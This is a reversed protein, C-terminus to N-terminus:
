PRTFVATRAIRDHLAQRSPTLVLGCGLLVIAAALASLTQIVNIGSFGAILIGLSGCNKVVWRGALQGASGRAGERDRIEIVLLRKGVTWGTFAEILNYCAVIGFAAVFEASVGGSVAAGLWAGLARGGLVALLAALVCDILYASLRRAFGIRNEM